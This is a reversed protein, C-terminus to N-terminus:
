SKWHSMLLVDKWSKKNLKAWKIYKDWTSDITPVKHINFVKEEVAQTKFKAVVKKAMDLTDVMKSKWSSNPLKVRVRFRNNTNLNNGCKCKNTKLKHSAHCEPCRLNMSM